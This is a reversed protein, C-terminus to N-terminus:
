FNTGIIRQFMHMLFSYVAEKQELLKEKDIVNFYQAESFEENKGFDFAIKFKIEVL